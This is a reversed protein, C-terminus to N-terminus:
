STPASQRCIHAAEGRLTLSLGVYAPQGRAPRVSELHQLVRVEAHPVALIASAWKAEISPHLTPLQDFHLDENPFWRRARAEIVEWPSAALKISLPAPTSLWQFTAASGGSVLIRHYAEIAVKIGGRYWSLKWLSARLRSLPNDRDVIKDVHRMFQTSHLMEAYGLGCNLMKVDRCTSDASALWFDFFTLMRAVTGRLATQVDVDGM